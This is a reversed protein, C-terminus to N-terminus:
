AQDPEKPKTTPRFEMTKVKGGRNLEIVHLLSLSIDVEPKM